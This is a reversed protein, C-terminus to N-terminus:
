MRISYELVYKIISFLFFFDKGLSYHCFLEIGEGTLVEAARLNRMNAFFGKRLLSLSESMKQLGESHSVASSGVQESARVIEQKCRGFILKTLMAM